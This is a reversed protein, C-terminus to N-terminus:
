PAKDKESDSLESEVKILKGNAAGLSSLCSEICEQYDEGVMADRKCAKPTPIPETLAAPLEKCVLEGTTAPPPTLLGRLTGCASLSCMLCLSALGLRLARTKCM